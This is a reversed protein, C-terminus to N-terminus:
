FDRNTVTRKKRPKGERQAKGGRIPSERIKGELGNFCMEVIGDGIEALFLQALGHYRSFKLKRFNQM